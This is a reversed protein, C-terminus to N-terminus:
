RKRRWDRWYQAFRAEFEAPTEGYIRHGLVMAKDRLETRCRDILRLLARHESRGRADGLEIVKDRLVSLDHDDGLYDALKHTQDALEGIMGPWLPELLQLQHWLYKTQKRWEHLAGVSSEARAQQLAERGRRYTRLAGAALAERGTGGPRRAAARRARSLLKRSLRAGDRGRVAQRWAATREGQLSRRLRGAGGTRRARPARHLLGDLAEVLIKADRAASLPRAADRLLQSEHRYASRSLTARMLRLTARAHKILKRADHIGSDDLEDNELKRRAKRILRRLLKGAQSVPETGRELTVAM